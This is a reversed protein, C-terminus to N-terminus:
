NQNTAEPSSKPASLIYHGVTEACAAMQLLIRWKENCIARLCSIIINGALITCYRHRRKLRRINRHRVPQGFSFRSFLPFDKPNSRARLWSKILPPPTSNMKYKLTFKRGNIYNLFSPVISRKGGGSFKTVAWKKLRFDDKLLWKKLRLRGGDGNKRSTTCWHHLMYFTKYESFRLRLYSHLFLISNKKQLIDMM